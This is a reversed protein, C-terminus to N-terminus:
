EIDAMKILLQIRISPPFDVTSLFLHHTDTRAPPPRRNAKGPDAPLRGRLGRGRHVFLHIETLIDQLALGKLTKLETIESVLALSPSEELGKGALDWEEDGRCGRPGEGALLM